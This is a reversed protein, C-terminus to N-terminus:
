WNNNNNNNIHVTAKDLRWEFNLPTAGWEYQISSINSVTLNIEREKRREARAVLTEREKDNEANLYREFAQWNTFRGTGPDLDPNLYAPGEKEEENMTICWISSLFLPDFPTNFWDTKILTSLLGKQQTECCYRNLPYVYDINDM